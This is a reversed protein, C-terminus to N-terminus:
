FNNKAWTIYLLILIRIYSDQKGWILAPCLSSRGQHFGIDWMGRELISIEPGYPSVWQGQPYLTQWHGPLGANSGLDLRVLSEFFHYKIGRQEVNQMILYTDLTFHLLGQFPNTGVGVNRHLLVQFLTGM